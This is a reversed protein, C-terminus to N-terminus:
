QATYTEARLRADARAQVPARPTGPADRHARLAPIPKCSRASAASAQDRRLALEAIYDNRNM